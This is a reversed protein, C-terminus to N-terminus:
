LQSEFNDPTPGFTSELGEASLKATPRLRFRSFSYGPMTLHKFFIVNKKDLLHPDHIASMDLCCVKKERRGLVVETSYTIRLMGQEADIKNNTV